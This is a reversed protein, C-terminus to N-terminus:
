VAATAVPTASPSAASPSPVTATVKIENQKYTDRVPKQGSFSLKMSGDPNLSAVRATYTQGAESVTVQDGIGAPKQNPTGAAVPAGPKPEVNTLNVVSTTEGFFTRAPLGENVVDMKPAVTTDQKAAETMARRVDQRSSIQISGSEREPAIWGIRLAESYGAQGLKEQLVRPAVFSSRSAILIRAIESLKM